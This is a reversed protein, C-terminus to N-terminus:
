RGCIRYLVAIRVGHNPEEDPTPLRTLHKAPIRYAVAWRVDACPEEDPTPVHDYDSITM